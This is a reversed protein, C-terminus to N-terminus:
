IWWPSPVLTRASSGHWCRKASDRPSDLLGQPKLIHFRSVESFESPDASRLEAQMDTDVIGPSPSISRASNPLTTELALARLFHDPGAKVRPFPYAPRKVNAETHM